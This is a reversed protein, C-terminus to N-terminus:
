PGGGGVKVTFVSVAFLLILKAEKGGVRRRLWTIGELKIAFGKVEKRVRV